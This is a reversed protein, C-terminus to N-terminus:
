SHCDGRVSCTMSGLGGTEDREMQAISHLCEPDRENNFIQQRENRGGARIGPRDIVTRATVPSRHLDTSRITATVRLPHSVDGRLEPSM